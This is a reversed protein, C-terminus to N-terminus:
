IRSTKEYSLGVFGPGIVGAVTSSVTIIAATVGKLLVGAGVSGPIM